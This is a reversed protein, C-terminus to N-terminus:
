RKKLGTVQKDAEAVPAPGAEEIVPGAAVAQKPAEEIVATPAAIASTAVLAVCATGFLFKM